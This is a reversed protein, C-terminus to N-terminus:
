RNRALDAPRHRHHRLELDGPGLDDCLAASEGRADLDGEAPEVEYGRGLELIRRPHGLLPAGGGPEGEALYECKELGTLGHQDRELIWVAVGDADDVRRLRSSFPRPDIRAM